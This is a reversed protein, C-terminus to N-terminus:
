WTLTGDDCCSEVDSYKRSQSLKEGRRRRGSCGLGSAPFQNCIELSPHGGEAQARPWLLCLGMWPTAPLSVRVLVAGLCGQQNLQSFPSSQLNKVEENKVPRDVQLHPEVPRETTGPTVPDAQCARCLPSIAGM